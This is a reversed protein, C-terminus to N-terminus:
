HRTIKNLDTREQKVFGFWKFKEVSRLVDELANLFRDAEKQEIILPPAIRLVDLNNMTFATIIRHKKLLQRAIWITLAGEVLRSNGKLRALGVGMMLGKGRIDRLISFRAKLQVLNTLLYNGIKEANEPLKKQILTKITAVACVCARANGGFTTTHLLGTELSGYAKKWIADTTVTAGIPM